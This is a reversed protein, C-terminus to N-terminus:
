QKGPSAHRSGGNQTPSSNPEEDKLWQLREPDWIREVIRRYLQQREDLDTKKFEAHPKFPLKSAEIFQRFGPNNKYANEHLSQALLNERLYHERKKAYSSDGFGANLKQPLLLLGGIYNRAQQFDLNSVFEDLHDTYRNAWIHEIQYNNKSGTKVYDLYRSLQGSGVEIYDTIRALILRIAKRNSSNLGFRDNATNSTKNIWSFLEGQAEEQDPSTTTEDKLKKRLMDILDNASKDRIERILAFMAKNLYRQAITNANWIRRFLFIDLYTSVIEIKKNKDAETDNPQLAALLVPYQLTFDHQANYYVCAFEPSLEKAAKRLKIYQTSYFTFDKEIFNAFSDGSTLNLDDEHDRVWRHFESGIRDFDKTTDNAYRGRLWAKIGNSEENKGLKKLNEAKEIWTKSANNRKDFTTIQSLLYGKLMDAAALSLGRDNMTEFTTYADDITYTTIEVLCVREVLWDAFYPVMEKKIRLQNEIDKYRYVINSITEPQNEIEQDIGFLQGSFLAEMVAKREPINLNFSKEGFSASFILPSIQSRYNDDELLHYLRILLLTLTTLRQQGDIIARKADSNCIIISGLFYPAYGAVAAREHTPKYSELFKNELDDILETVQKTEWSYGRQYYDLTYTNGLLGKITKVEGNIEKM